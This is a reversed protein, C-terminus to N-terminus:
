TGIESAMIEVKSCSQNPRDAQFQSRITAIILRALASPRDMAFCAAGSYASEAAHWGADDRAPGDVQKLAVSGGKDQRAICALPNLDKVHAYSTRGCFLKNSVTPQLVSRQHDMLPSRAAPLDAAAVTRFTKRTAFM